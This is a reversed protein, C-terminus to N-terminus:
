NFADGDVYASGLQKCFDQVHLKPHPVDRHKRKDDSNKVITTQFAFKKSPCGIM